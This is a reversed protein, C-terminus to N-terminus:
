VALPYRALGILALDDTHVLVTPVDQLTQAFRGKAEFRDRFPSDSLFDAFRPPIGGGIFVGGWAGYSLALSGAVSGLFACFQNLVAADDATGVLAGAVVDAEPKMGNGTMVDCLLSLGRGSLIREASVHGLRDRLAAIVREEQESTAALTAHGAETALAHSHRERPLYCSVGLGTGVMLLALPKTCDVIGGGLSSHTTPELHPLALAAAQVDNFLEVPADCLVRSIARANFQWSGNTLSATNGRVVGAIALRTRIVNPQKFHEAAAAIAAISSSYDDVKLKLPESYAGDTGVAFRANTGGIDGIFVSETM